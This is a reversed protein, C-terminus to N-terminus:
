AREKADSQLYAGSPRTLTKVGLPSRSPLLSPPDSTDPNDYFTDDARM